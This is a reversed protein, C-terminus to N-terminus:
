MLRERTCRGWPEVALTKEKDTLEGQEIQEVMWDLDTKPGVVVWEGEGIFKVVYEVGNVEVEGWLRGEVRELNRVVLGAGRFRLTIDRM